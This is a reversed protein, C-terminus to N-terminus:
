VNLAQFYKKLSRSFCNSNYLLRLSIPLNNWSVIANYLFQNQSVTKTFHPINLKDAINFRTSHVHIPTLQNIKNRFHLNHDSYLCKHFMTLVFYLHTYHFNLVTQRDQGVNLLSIARDQLKSIKLRNSVGCGGWVQVGYILHPYFLSFYLTKLIHQPVFTSLKRSVGIVSSLKKSLLNIHHNFNLRSDINIGLFKINQVLAINSNNIKINVSDLDVPSHTFLMFKTKNVNLSLRNAVLWKSVNELEVNIEQCLQILNNGSKFITTDDAFHLFSLKNSSRHMDNVYLSFLWPASVSGQPVGINLTATRSNCENLNVYIRRDTLYSKFWEGTLGRFGMRDLKRVLIDRNVTDFAKSLDLFIAIFYLKSDLSATCHDIFEVVTDSTSYGARFGFQKNYLVNNMSIFSDARVKMLKEIIKSVISLLSIPRFNSVIKINNCKFIPTIKAIKLIDPFKGERISSNFIDCIIPSLFNIFKKYIFVPVVDLSCSKCELSMVVNNIEDITAPNAFFSNIVPQPMFCMPDIDSSPISNDLDTAVSSFYDLFLNSLKTPDTVERDNDIMVKPTFSKKQKNLISNITQWNKKVNNGSNLFKNSYYAVKASRMKRTLSNKYLNYTNFPIVNNKYQKFLRHKKNISQQLDGTIWPKLLQKVSLTKSRKPCTRNYVDFLKGVFWESKFNVNQYKIEQDYQEALSVMEVSMCEMSRDSHDRFVKTIPKKDVVFNLITFIPYHDTIDVIFSGSFAINFNNFWIQDLCKASNDTVRTPINILPFFSNSHMVNIFNLSDEVNLIDINVDGVFITPKRLSGAAVDNIKENFLQISSNPPRYIGSIVVNQKLNLNNPYVEVSCM